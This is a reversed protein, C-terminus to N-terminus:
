IVEVFKDYSVVRGHQDQVSIRAKLRNRDEQRDIEMVVEVSAARGADILWQLAARIDGEVLRASGDTNKLRERRKLGFSPDVFFSGQAIEVSVIVNTLLDDGGAMSLYLRGASTTIGQSM